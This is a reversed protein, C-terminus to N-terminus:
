FRFSFHNHERKAPTWVWNVTKVCVFQSCNLKLQLTEHLLSRISKDSQKIIAGIRQFHFLRMACCLLGCMWIRNQDFISFVFLYATIFLLKNTTLLNIRKMACVSRSPIAVNNKQINWSVITWHFTCGPHIFITRALRRITLILM